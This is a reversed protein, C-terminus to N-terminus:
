RTGKNGKKKWRQFQEFYESLDIVDDGVSDEMSLSNSDDVNSGHLRNDDDDDEDEEDLECSSFSKLCLSWKM